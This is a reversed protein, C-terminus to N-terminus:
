IEDIEDYRDSKGLGLWQDLQGNVANTRSDKVEDKTPATDATDFKFRHGGPTDGGWTMSLNHSTHTTGHDSEWEDDRKSTGEKTKTYQFKAGRNGTETYVTGVPASHLTEGLVKYDDGKAGGNIRRLGIENLKDEAAKADFKAGGSVSGAGGAGSASTFRGDKGHYPNAKEVEDDFFDVAEEEEDEPDASKVLENVRAPASICLKDILAEMAGDFEDLSKLMMQKKHEVDLDKDDQISRISTTLAETYRWLMDRSEQGATIQNFTSYDKQIGSEPEVNGETPNSRIWGLFRKFLNTEHETPGEAPENQPDASKYLMIDAEQNAGARVLDISTLKMKKLKTAM